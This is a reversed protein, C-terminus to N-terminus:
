APIRAIAGRLIAIGRQRASLLPELRQFVFPPVDRRNSAWHDVTDPRVDLFDALEARWDRRGWLMIASNEMIARKDPVFCAPPDIVPQNM